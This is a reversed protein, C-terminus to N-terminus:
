VGEKAIYGLVVGYGNSMEIHSTTETFQKIKFTYAKAMGKLALITAVADETPITTASTKETFVAFNNSM